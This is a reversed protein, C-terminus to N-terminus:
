PAYFFAEMVTSDPREANPIRLPVITTLMDAPMMGLGHEDMIQLLVEGGEKKRLADRNIATEGRNITFVVYPAVLSLLCGLNRSSAGKIVLYTCVDTNEDTDNMVDLGVQALRAEVSDHIVKLRSTSLFDYRPDDLSGYAARLQRELTDIDVSDRDNM